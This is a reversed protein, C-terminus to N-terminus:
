KQKRKQYYEANRNKRCLKCEHRPTKDKTSRTEFDMIAKIDNCKSCRKTMGHEKQYQRRKLVARLKYLTKRYVPNTKRKKTLSKVVRKCLSQREEETLKDYPTRPLLGRQKASNYYERRLQKKSIAKPKRFITLMKDTM